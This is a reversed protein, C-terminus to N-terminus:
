KAATNESATNESEAMIPTGDSLNLIGSTILTEGPQLGEFVQYYNGEINGLKVPRQEAIQQLEGTELKSTQAVFVFAQNGLRSIASTPILVRQRENWIVRARVFQEDRLVEQPNPFRAKALVAQSNADVRPSVFSIKGVVLPEANDATRLEVPLEVQLQAAREIPIALRLELTQNQTITTLMDSTEVYDGIKFPLDGIIGAAPAVVRTDELNEQEVDADAQAQSLDANAADLASRAAQVRKNNANFTALAADRDRIVRDLTQQAQAGEKVLFSNRKYDEEQLKVEAAASAVEAEAARLQAEAQSRAAKFSNIRAFASNLQAQNRDPRLQVISTGISVNDGSQVSISVIRGNMEPRLTVRQQAELVGVFESSDRVATVTVQQLKVPVNQAAPADANSASNGASLLRWTVGGGILLLLTLLWWYWRTKKSKPQQPTKQESPKLTPNSSNSSKM